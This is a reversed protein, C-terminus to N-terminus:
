TDKKIFYEISEEQIEAHHSIYYVDGRNGLHMVVVILSIGFPNDEIKQRLAVEQKISPPNFVLSTIDPYNKQMCENFYHLDIFIVESSGYAIHGRITEIKIKQTRKHPFLSYSLTHCLLNNKHSDAIHTYFPYYFMQRKKCIEYDIGQEEWKMRQKYLAIRRQIPYELYRSYSIPCFLEYPKKHARERQKSLAHLCGCYNQRYLKADKCLIQQKQTGGKSRTDLSIFGIDYWSAVEAGLAFLEQQPKMPSTLLTTSIWEIGLEKAKRATKHLRVDFCIACREGKEEADEYGTTERLWNHVDYEDDILEIGLMDCSRQVDLWRLQYEEFPHINPNYFFGIIKASPYINHLESLFYHSDVSCCIHVLIHSKFDQDVYPAIM